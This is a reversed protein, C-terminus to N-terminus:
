RIPYLWGFEGIRLEFVQCVNRSHRRIENRGRGRLCNESYKCGATMNAFSYLDLEDSIIIEIDEANASYRSLGKVLIVLSDYHDAVFEPSPPQVFTGSDGSSDNAQAVAFQRDHTDHRLSEITGVQRRVHGVQPDRESHFWGRKRACIPCVNPSCPSQLHQRAAPGRRRQM